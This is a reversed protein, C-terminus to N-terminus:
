LYTRLAVQLGEELNILSDAIEIIEKDANPYQNKYRFLSKIGMNCGDTLVDAIAQDEEEKMMKMNIKMWSMVKAMPNPDKETDHYEMLLGHTKDGLKEHAEKNHIILEKLNHDQVSPLVEDFSAVATKVGANCEKLLKVTDESPM